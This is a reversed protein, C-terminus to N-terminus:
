ILKMVIKNNHEKITLLLKVYAYIKFYFSLSELLAALCGPPNFHFLVVAIVAIARVGNIDKRYQM